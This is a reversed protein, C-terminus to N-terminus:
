VKMSKALQKVGDSVEKPKESGGMIGQRVQSLLNKAESCERSAAIEAFDEATLAYGHNWGMMSHYDPLVSIINNGAVTGESFVAVKGTIQAKIATPVEAETITIFDSTGFGIKVIYKKM